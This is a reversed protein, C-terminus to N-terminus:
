DHIIVENSLENKDDPQIPFHIKLTDAIREIAEVIGKTYAKLKFQEIMLDCQKQWYMEDVFQHIGKDGIIACLHDQYGVYILVSNQASTRHMELEDFVQLAREIAPLGVSIKPLKREIYVRLEASSENELRVIAAEVQKKDVPIRSFFRMM